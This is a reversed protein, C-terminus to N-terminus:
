YKGNQAEFKTPKGLSEGGNMVWHATWAVMQRVSISPPGFLQTAYAANNLYGIGNEEGTFRVTKGMLEGLQQALERVSLIEPGTINLACAPTSALPFSRLVQDCADGQWIVNVYGTTVDVPKDAWINSAIDYLVGYRLDIAYNLRIHVVKEGATDAFYDFMRERGLCSQAYEGIPEPRVAETAGGTSVHMLPYVCGTSFAAIRAHPFTRAVHYPVIVNTAWTLSEAGTSGFKRGAMFVINEAQPLREVAALDMLDCTLMTIGTDALEPIPRRAVAIVDKTVGAAQIAHRATLAMSPGVKGAAGLIMIDGELTRMFDVLAASPRSLLEELERPTTVVAPINELM